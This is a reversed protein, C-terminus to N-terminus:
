MTFERVIHTHRPALRDFVTPKHKSYHGFYYTLNLFLKAEDWTNHSAGLEVSLKKNPNAKLATRWGQVPKITTSANWQYAKLSLRAHNPFPTPVEVKLDFGDLALPQSGIANYLNARVVANESFAEGGISIHEANSETDQDYFGNLGLAWTNDATLWRYGSGINTTVGGDEQRLKGQLFVTENHTQRIPRLTKIMLTPQNNAMGFKITTHKLWIPRYQASLARNGLKTLTNALNRSQEDAFTSPSIPLLISFMCTSMVAQRKM